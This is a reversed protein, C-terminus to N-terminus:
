VPRRVSRTPRNVCDDPILAKRSSLRESGVLRAVPSALIGAPGLSSGLITRLAPRIALGAM